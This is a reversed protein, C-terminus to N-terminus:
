AASVELRAIEQRKELKAVAFLNRLRDLEIQVDSRRDLAENLDATCKQYFTESLLETRKAKRQADNKLTADFAVAGDAEAEISVIAAQLTAIQRNQYHLKIEFSAIADPYDGLQFEIM